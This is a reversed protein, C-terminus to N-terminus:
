FSLLAILLLVAAETVIGIVFLTARSVPLYEITVSREGPAVDLGIFQEGARVLRAAGSTVRWYPQYWQTVVINRRGNSPAFRMTMGDARRDITIAQPDRNIGARAFDACLFRDHGCNPLRPFPTPPFQAVFFAEPWADPNEFIRM